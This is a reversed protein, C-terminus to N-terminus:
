PLGDWELECIELKILMDELEFVCAWDQRTKLLSYWVKNKM